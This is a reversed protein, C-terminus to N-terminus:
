WTTRHRQVSAPTSTEPLLPSAYRMRVQFCVPTPLRLMSTERILLARGVKASGYSNNRVVMSPILSVPSEAAHLRTGWYISGPRLFATTDLSKITATG